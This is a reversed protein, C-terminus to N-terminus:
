TNKRIEGKHVRTNESQDNNSFFILFSILVFLINFALFLVTIGIWFSNVIRLTNEMLSGNELMVQYTITSFVTFFGSILSFSSVIIFEKRYEKDSMLEKVPKTNFISAFVSLCAGYFGLSISSLLLVGELAKDVGKIAYLPIFIYVLISSLFSILLACFLYKYSFSM